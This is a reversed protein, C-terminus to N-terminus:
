YFDVVVIQDTGGRYYFIQFRFHDGMKGKSRSIESRSLPNFKRVTFIKIKDTAYTLGSNHVNSVKIQRRDLDVNIFFM